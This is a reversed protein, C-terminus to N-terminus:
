LEGRELEVVLAEGVRLTQRPLVVRSGGFPSWVEYDAAALAKGGLKVARPPSSRLPISLHLTLPNGTRLTVLVKRRRGDDTVRLDLRRAGVRLGTWAMSPWNNPLRPALRVADAPADAVFGTLYYVVADLDIGGEWPRFRATYDGVTKGTRDYILQLASHDDYIQYECVNGSSSVVRALTNFAKEASPHDMAALNYLVYGPSMGTYMGKRIDLGFAGIHKRHLPTLWLGDPQGLKKVLARIREVEGSDRPKSYGAWLPKTSVDAYPGPPDARSARDRYAAYWGDANRYASEAAKRVEAARKQLGAIEEGRGVAKALGALANASAVFLFSSNASDCCSKFEYTLSLGFSLGMATRYTEDGSFPLLGSKSVQQGVVARKLMGFQTRALSLDGTARVYWDHVLPLYSPGEAATTGGMPPLGAWDPETVKKGPDLDLRYSNRLDGNDSAARHYYVLLARVEDFLGVRLWFRVPGAIDRTWIRTYHSMPSVGGAWARQVLTTVLMGEYLDDVRRDPSLLRAAGGLVKRWDDRTRLLLEDLDVSDLAKVTQDRGQDDNSLVYALGARKEAGPPLNGLDVVPDKSWDHAKAGLVVVARSRRELYSRGQRVRVRVPSVATNGTNRVLVLRMITRRLPDAPGSVSVGFTVTHLLLGDFRERTVLISSGRVRFIHGEVPRRATQDGGVLLDLWTDPFFAKNKEYTPGIMSHLANIPCGYGALAFSHGNGVAYDGMHRSENPQGKGCGPSSWTSLDQLWTNAKFYGGQVPPSAPAKWLAPPPAQGADPVSPVEGGQCAQGVALLAAVLLTFLLKTRDM